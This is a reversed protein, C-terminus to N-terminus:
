VFPGSRMKTLPFTVSDKGPECCQNLARLWVCPMWVEGLIPIDGNFWDLLRSGAMCYSNRLSEPFGEVAVGSIPARQAMTVMM